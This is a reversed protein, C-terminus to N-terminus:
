EPAQANFQLLLSANGAIPLLVEWDLTLTRGSMNLNYDRLDYVANSMLCQDFKAKALTNNDSGASQAYADQLCAKVTSAALYEPVVKIAIWIVALALLIVGLLGWLSLGKQQCKMAQNM